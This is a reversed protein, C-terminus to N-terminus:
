SEIETNCTALTVFGIRRYKIVAERRLQPFTINLTTETQRNVYPSTGTHGILM